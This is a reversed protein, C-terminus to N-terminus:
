SKGLLLDVIHCGRVHVRGPERLHALVEQDGCGAEELADALVALRAPELLGDPLSRQGYAAEALRVLLGERWRLLDPALTVPRFPFPGFLDRLLVAQARIEAACPPCADEWNGEWHHRFRSLNGWAVTVASMRDTLNGSYAVWAALAADRDPLSAFYDAAVVNAAADAAQAVEKRINMVAAWGYDWISHGLPNTRRDPGAGIASRFLRQLTALDDPLSTGEVAREFQAVVEQSAGEGLLHWIRRCCAAAFLSAKRQSLKGTNKLFGLMMQPEGFSMWEAETMPKTRRECTGVEQPAAALWAM